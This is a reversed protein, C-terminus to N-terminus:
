ERINIALAVRSYFSAIFLVLLVQPWGMYVAMSLVALAEVLPNQRSNLGLGDCWIRVGPGYLSLVSQASGPTPTITTTHAGQDQDRRTVDNNSAAAAAAAKAAAAVEAPDAEFHVATTQPPALLRDAVLKQQEYASLQNLEQTSIVPWKSKSGRGAAPRAKAV